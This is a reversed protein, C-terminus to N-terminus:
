KTKNKTKKETEQNMQCPNQNTQMEESIILETKIRFPTQRNTVNNQRKHEPQQHNLVFPDQHYIIPFFQKKTQSCNYM